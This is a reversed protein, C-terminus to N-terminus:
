IYSKYNIAEKSWGTRDTDPMPFGNPMMNKPVVEKGFKAALKKRICGDMKSGKCYTTIFGNVATNKGMSNCCQMFGCGSLNPCEM